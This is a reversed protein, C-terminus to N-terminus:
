SGDEELLQEADELISNINNFYGEQERPSEDQIQKDNTLEFLGDIMTQSQQPSNEFEKVPTLSDGKLKIKMLKNLHSNARAEAEELITLVKQNQNELECISEVLSEDVPQESQENEQDLQEMATTFGDNSDKQNSNRQDKFYEIMSSPAPTVNSVRISSIDERVTSLSNKQPFTEEGSRCEFFEEKEVVYKEFKYDPKEKEEVKTSMQVKM